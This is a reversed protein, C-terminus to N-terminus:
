KGLPVYGYGDAQLNVLSTLASVATEAFVVVEEPAGGKSILSQGCVYLEVNAESLQRLLSLNPNDKTNFKATYADSNLVALTADGHLVVAIQVAAAKAGGGAYINVFRAVKDLGPNVKSPDGGQTLDVLLKSGVRPQQAAAPLQFVAGHDDILPHTRQRPTAPENAPVAHNKMAEAFGREVFGSVANAHAQILKVVYPDSSIERVRVGKPTDEHIMKIKDTHKFLEAFLPDRMRIPQAEEIRHEMWDVHEKIKAAIEPIDSETLTEVGSPLERVTRKIKDHNQLLFQFVERDAAHRDDQGHQAGQGNARLAGDQGAVPGKGGGFGRGRGRGQSLVPEAFMASVLLVILLANFRIM